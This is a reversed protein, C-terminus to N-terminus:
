GDGNTAQEDNAGKETSEVKVGSGVLEAVEKANAVKTTVMTGLAHKFAQWGSVADILKTENTAKIKVLYIRTSM